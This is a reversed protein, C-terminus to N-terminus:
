NYEKNKEEIIQQALEKYKEINRDRQEQSLGPKDEGLHSENLKKNQM